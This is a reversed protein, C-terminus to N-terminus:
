KEFFRLIKGCRDTIQKKTLERLQDLDKHKIEELDDFEMMPTSAGPIHQSMLPPSSTQLQAVFMGTKADCSVEVDFGHSQTMGNWNTVKDM